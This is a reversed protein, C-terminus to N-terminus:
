LVTRWEGNVCQIMTDTSEEYFIVSIKYPTVEKNIDVRIDIGEFMEDYYSIPTDDDIDAPIRYICSDKDESLNKSDDYIIKNGEEVELSYESLPLFGSKTQEAFRKIIDLLAITSLSCNRFM